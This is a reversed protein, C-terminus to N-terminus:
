STVTRQFFRFRRMIADKAAKLEFWNPIRNPLSASLHLWTSREGGSECTDASLMVRLGTPKHRYWHSWGVHTFREWDNPVPRRLVPEKMDVVTQLNPIMSITRAELEIAEYVTWGDGRQGRHVM